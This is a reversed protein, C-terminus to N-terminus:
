ARAFGAIEDPLPNQGPTVFGPRSPRSAPEQAPRIIGLKRMRALLTTRPIELRAAAGGPGGVVWKTERLVEIIHLRMMDNLTRAPPDSETEAEPPPAQLDPGSSLIVAREVCNQLKRINGPWDRRKLAELLLLFTTIVALHFLNTEYFYPQQIVSYVIGVRDWIGDRNCARVHFKHTGIPFNPYIASDTSDADVWDQDVDDMRYQIRIKEPSRLEIM